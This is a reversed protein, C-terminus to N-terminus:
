VLTQKSECAVFVKKTIFKKIKKIVIVDYSIQKTKM